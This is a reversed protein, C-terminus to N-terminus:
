ESPNAASAVNSSFWHMALRKLVTEVLAVMVKPLATGSCCAAILLEPM